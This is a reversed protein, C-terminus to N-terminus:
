CRFARRWTSACRTGSSRDRAPAPAIWRSPAMALVRGTAPEEVVFGGSVKPLTKLVYSGGSPAVAIIDGVKIASSAPGGGGRIPMSAAGRPLTGTAGNSFGLTFDGSDDIVVAARWDEYDLAINSALLANLWNQSM